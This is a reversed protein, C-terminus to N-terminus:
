HYLLGINYDDPYTILTGNSLKPLVLVLIDSIYGTSLSIIIYQNTLLSYEHVILWM